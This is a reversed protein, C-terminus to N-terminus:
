TYCHPKVVGRHSIKIISLIIHTIFSDFAYKYQVTYVAPSIIDNYIYLQYLQAYIVNCGNIKNSKEFCALGPNNVFFESGISLHQPFFQKLYQKTYLKALPSIDIANVSNPISVIYIYIYMYHWLLVSVWMSMVIVDYHTRHRRLDRADRNNAWGNTRPCILSFILAGQWQGKHPFGGTVPPNGERLALLASFIGM